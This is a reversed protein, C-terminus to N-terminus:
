RRFGSWRKESLAAAVAAAGDVKLVSLDFYTKSSQLPGPSDKIFQTPHRDGLLFVRWPFTERLKIVMKRALDIADADTLSLDNRWLVAADMEDVDVVARIEAVQEVMKNRYMGFYRCRRHTYAGGQTPCIYVGDVLVEEPLGACNVADLQWQWTPLLEEEDLYSRFEEVTDKLDRPLQDVLLADYFDQFSAALFHVEAAKSKERIPDLKARDEKGEFTGLALLVKVGAPQRVLGALHNELQQLDFVSGEKTEVFISFSSQTILADPVSGKKKEQQTFNVGVLSGFKEDGFLTSLTDALHKPSAEYLLKLVLLCYNTTRNERQSYGSFLSISRGM